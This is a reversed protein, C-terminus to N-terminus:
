ESDGGERRRVLKRDGGGTASFNAGGVLHRKKQSAGNRFLCIGSDNSDSTVAAVDSSATRTSMAELLGKYYLVKGRDGAARWYQRAPLFCSGLLTTAVFRPRASSFM